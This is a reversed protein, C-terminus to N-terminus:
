KNMFHFHVFLIVFKVERGLRIARHGMMQELMNGMMQRWVLIVWLALGALMIFFGLVVRKAKVEVTM